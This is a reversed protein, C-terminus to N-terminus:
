TTAVNIQRLVAETNNGTIVYEKESHERVYALAARLADATWSLRRYPRITRKVGPHDGSLSLWNEDDVAFLKPTPRKGHASRRHDRTKARRDNM